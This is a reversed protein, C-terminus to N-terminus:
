RVVVPRSTGIRVIVNREVDRQVARAPAVPRHGFPAARCQRAVRIGQRDPRARQAPVLVAQRDINVFRGRRYRRPQASLDPDFGSRQEIMGPREIPERPMVPPRDHRTGIYLYHQFARRQFPASLRIDVAIEAILRQLIAEGVPAPRARMKPPVGCDEVFAFAAIPRAEGVSQTEACVPRDRRDIQKRLDRKWLGAPPHRANGPGVLAALDRDALCPLIRGEIRAGRKRRMHEALRRIRDM